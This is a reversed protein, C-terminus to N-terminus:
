REGEGTTMTKAPHLSFISAESFPCSGVPVFDGNKDPYTGGIAHCADEYVIANPAKENLLNQIKQMDVVRGALHVVYVAKLKNIDAKEIAESLTKETILGTYPDVDAFIVDAGVYRVANATAAFTMSPVIVIDGEGIGSALAMIHLAATGNACAVAYKAGAKVAFKEEFSDITKGTTLWAGAISEDVAKFDDSDLSQRCYPLFDTM